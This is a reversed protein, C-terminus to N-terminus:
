KFCGSYTTGAQGEFYARGVILLVAAAFAAIMWRLAGRGGFALALIGIVFGAAIGAWALPGVLFKALPCLVSSATATLNTGVNIALSSGTLAGAALALGTAVRKRPDKLDERAQELVSRGWVQAKVYAKLLANKWMPVEKLDLSM